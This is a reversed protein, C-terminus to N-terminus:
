RSQGPRKGSETPGTIGSKGGGEANRRCALRSLIHDASPPCAPGVGRGGSLTRQVSRCDGVTALSEVTRLPREETPRYCPTVASVLVGSSAVAWRMASFSAINRWAFSCMSVRASRLKVSASVLLMPKTHSHPLTSQSAWRYRVCSCYSVRLLFGIRKATNGPWSISPASFTTPWRPSAITTSFSPDALCTTM